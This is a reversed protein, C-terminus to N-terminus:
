VGGQRAAIAAAERRNAAGLKSLVNAVHHHVTRPSIFLQEAIEPDTLRQCLLALVEQERFTLDTQATRVVRPLTADAVTAPRTGLREFTGLAERRVTEDDSDTLARAAEYPCGLARWAAAAGAWDGSMQLAFPEAAAAPPDTMEGARWLWFALEGVIWDNRHGVTVELATRVEHTTREQDGALWAAEARAAHVAGLRLFTGNPAALALAEDLAEWVGPDGRRARVRGLALLAVTRISVSIRFTSEVGEWTAAERPAPPTVVPMRLVSTALETAESWRGQFQRIHALRAVMIWLWSDLDHDTAYTIGESVHRDADDFRYVESYCESLTALAAAIFGPLDAAQALQLGRELATRGRAVDGRQFWAQGVTNLGLIIREVDGLREALTIAREGWTVAEDLDGTLLGLSARVGQVGAHAVGEPVGDLVALADSAAQAAETHQEDLGLTIALWGLHEAEKPRDGLRRALAILEQRPWIGAVSWEALDSVQAYAELLELREQDPLGGAFRLARAYQATAERNAHLEAARRAAAPAFSLVAERDGAAEAHHALRALDDDGFAVSRLAKLVAAHLVRCRRHSITALVADRALEHRFTLLDREMRLIVTALCEDVADADVGGIADLLWPEIRAGIVAAAALISQAPLSLRAVWALVADQVTAPIGHEGGALVETVFFPNGATRRYLATADMGSGSALTQVAAPSLPPLVMRHVAAATALDGTVIRLPHRSGVEDDRYTVLVLSRTGGIRRGLFRLLDLTAEDAWHADEIIFLTPGSATLADLTARFLMHRPADAAVLEALEGGAHHAVDLLPGLPRPTLLPDCAGILVRASGAVRDSLHRVLATKGVGAEGGLLVLHGETSAAQELLSALENLETSRELLHM